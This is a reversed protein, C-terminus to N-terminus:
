KLFKWYYGGATKYKGLCVQSISNRVVGTNKSAETQSKYTKIPIGDLGIQCVPKRTAVDQHLVSIRHVQNYSNSCWELNDICNNEKNGDIHNVQSYNSANQIFSYSVLRHVLMSKAKGNKSLSVMKYCKNNICQSLVIEDRGRKKLSKVRGLNSVQYLGEYGKIDKWIEDM